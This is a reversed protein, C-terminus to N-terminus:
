KVTIGVASIQSIWYEDVSPAYTTEDAPEGMAFVIAARSAQWCLWLGQVEGDYFEGDGLNGIFDTFRIDYGVGLSEIWIIFEARIKKINM